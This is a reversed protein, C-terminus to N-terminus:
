PRGALPKLRDARSPVLLVTVACSHRAQRKAKDDAATSLLSSRLGHIMSDVSSECRTRVLELDVLTPAPIVLRRMISENHRKGIDAAILVADLLTPMLTALSGLNRRRRFRVLNRAEVFAGSQRTVGIDRLENLLARPPIDGAYERVLDSFSNRSGRVSLKKPTGDSHAFRADSCWGSIVGDLPSQPALASKQAKLFRRVEGRRLGTLVSIKSQNIRGNRLTSRRGAAKIFSRKALEGFEAFTIGRSLLISALETMFRDLMASAPKLSRSYSGHQESHVSGVTKSAHM